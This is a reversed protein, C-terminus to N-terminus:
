EKAICIEQRCICIKQIEIKKKAPVIACKVHQMGKQMCFQLAFQCVEAGCEGPVVSMHLALDLKLM